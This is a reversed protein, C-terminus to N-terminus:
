QRGEEQVAGAEISRHMEVIELADRILRHPIEGTRLAPPCLDEINYGRSAMEDVLSNLEGSVGGEAYTEYLRNLWTRPWIGQEVGQQIRGVTDELASYSDVTMAAEGRKQMLYSTKSIPDDPSNKFANRIDELQRVYSGRVLHFDLCSESHAKKNNKLDKYRKSKAIKCCEEAIEYALSFPFHSHVLAIGACASLSISPKLEESEEAAELERLFAAALPIGIEAECILTVDDGDMILPRIKLTQKETESSKADSLSKSAIQEIIKAFKAQYGDAIELSLKRMEYVAGAYDLQQKEWESMKRYLQKGMGNGDIHIVAVYGDEGRERVLDSMEFAWQYRNGLNAPLPFTQEAEARRRSGVSTKEDESAKQKLYQLTSRQGSATVPLGGFGEQESIPFAGFPRQRLMASKVQQLRKELEKRDTVFCEFNTAVEAVALSLTYTTKIIREAFRRNVKMYFDWDRFAVIASGGGIYVIQAVLSVDEVIDFTSSAVQSSDCWQTEIRANEYSDAVERLVDPLDDKLIRGVIRSAGVNESLRNSAFIYEQIGSVDYIALWATQSDKM